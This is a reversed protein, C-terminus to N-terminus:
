CTAANFRGGKNNKYISFAFLLPLMSSLTDFTDSTVFIILITVLIGIIRLDRKGQQKKMLPFVLVRFNLVAGIIGIECFMKSMGSMYSILEPSTYKLGIGSSLLFTSSNSYGYGFIKHVLGLDKYCDWGYIMRVYLSSDRSINGQNFSYIKKQFQEQLVPQNWLIYIAVLIGPLLVILRLFGNIKNQKVLMFLYIMWIIGAGLIGQMSTTAILGGTVLFAPIVPKKETKIGSFLILALCPLCYQAQYAPELFFTSFRKDAVQNMRYVNSSMLDATNTTLGPLVMSFGWGLQGAVFQLMILASFFLCLKKYLKYCRDYNWIQYAFVYFNIFFLLFFAARAIISYMTVNDTRIGNIVLFVLVYSVYLMARGYLKVKREALMILFLALGFTCLLYLFPIPILLYNNLLPALLVLVQYIYLINFKWTKIM